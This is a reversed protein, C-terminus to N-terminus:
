PALALAASPETILKRQTVLQVTRGNQLECHSFHPGTWHGKFDVSPSGHIETLPPDLGQHVTSRTLSWGNM